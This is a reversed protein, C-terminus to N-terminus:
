KNCLVSWGYYLRWLIEIAQAFNSYPINQLCPIESWLVYSVRWRTLDNLGSSDNIALSGTGNGGRFEELIRERLGKAGGGIGNYVVRYTGVMENCLTLNPQAFNNILVNPFDVSGKKTSPIANVIESNSYDTYLWYFGDSKKPVLSDLKLRKNFSIKALRRRQLQNIKHLAVDIQQGYQIKNIAM